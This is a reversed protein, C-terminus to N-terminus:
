RKRREMAGAERCIFVAINNKKIRENYFYDMHMIFSKSMTFSELCFPIFM